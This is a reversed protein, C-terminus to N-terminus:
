LIPSLTGAGCPEIEAHISCVTGSDRSCVCAVEFRNVVLDIGCPHDISLDMYLWVGCDRGAPVRGLSKCLELCPKGLVRNGEIRFENRRKDDLKGRM